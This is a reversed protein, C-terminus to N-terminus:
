KLDGQDLRTRAKSIALWPVDKLEKGDKDTFVVENGDIYYYGIEKDYSIEPKKKPDDSSGLPVPDGTGWDGPGQLGYRSFMESQGELVNELEEKIIQKLQEKTIKM